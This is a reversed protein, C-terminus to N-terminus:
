ASSNATADPRDGRDFVCWCMCVVSACLYVSALAELACVYPLVFVCVCSSAHRLKIVPQCLAAPKVGVCSRLGSAKLEMLRQLMFCLCACLGVPM